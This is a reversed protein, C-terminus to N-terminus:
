RPLAFSYEVHNLRESRVYADGSKEYPVGHRELAQELLEESADDKWESVLTASWRDVKRYRTDDAFFSADGEYAYRICPFSPTSGDPWCQYVVPLGTEALMAAADRRAM